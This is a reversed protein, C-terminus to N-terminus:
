TAKVMALHSLDVVLSAPISIPINLDCETRPAVQELTALALTVVLCIKFAESQDELPM